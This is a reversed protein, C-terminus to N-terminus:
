QRQRETSRAGVRDSNGALRKYSTRTQGIVGIASLPPRLRHAHAGWADIPSVSLSKWPLYGEVEICAADELGYNDSNPDTESTPCPLRGHIAAFGLVAEKIEAM